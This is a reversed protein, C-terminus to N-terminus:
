SRVTAKAITAVAEQSALTVEPDMKIISKIRSVPLKLIRDNQEVATGTANLNENQSSDRNEAIKQSPQENEKDQSPEETLTNSGQQEKDDKPIPEETKESDTQVSEQTETCDTVTDVDMEELGAM